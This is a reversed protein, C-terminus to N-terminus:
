PRPTPPKQRPLLEMQELQRAIKVHNPDDQRVFLLGAFEEVYRGGRTWSKQDAAAKVVAVLKDARAQRALAADADNGAPELLSRVDYVWVRQYRLSTELDDNLSVTLIGDNNVFGLKDKGAAALVASLVRSFSQDKLSLTVPTNRNVGVTNLKPWNVYRGTIEMNDCLFNLIKELGQGESTIEKLKEDLDAQLASHSKLWRDHPTLVRISGDATYALPDRGLALRKLTQPLLEPNTEPSVIHSQVLLAAATATDGAELALQAQDVLSAAAQRRGDRSVDRPRIKLTGRDLAYTLQDPAAQELVELLVRELPEEKACITISTDPTVGVKHLAPWDVDITMGFNDAFFALVRGLMQSEAVIERLDETLRERLQANTLPQTAPPATTAPAAAFSAAGALALLICCSLGFRAM